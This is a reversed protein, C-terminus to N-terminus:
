GKGHSSLKTQNPRGGVIVDLELLRCKWPMLSQPLCRWAGDRIILTADERLKALFVWCCEVRFCKQRFRHKVQSPYVVRKASFSFASPRDYGNTDIFIDYPTTFLVLSSLLMAVVVIFVVLVLVITSLTRFEYVAIITSQSPFPMHNNLAIWILTRAVLARASEQKTSSSGAQLM